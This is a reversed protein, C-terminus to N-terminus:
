ENLDAFVRGYDHNAFGVQTFTESFKVIEVACGSKCGHKPSVEQTPRRGLFRRVVFYGAVSGLLLAFGVITVDRGFLSGHRFLKGFAAMFGGCVIATTVGCAGLGLAIAGPLGGAKSWQMHEACTQCFLFDMARSRTISGVGVFEKQEKRITFQHTAPELCCACLPPMRVPREDLVFDRIPGRPRPAERRKPIPLEEGCKCRVSRGAAKGPVKGERGCASCRVFLSDAV